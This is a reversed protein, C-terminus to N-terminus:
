FPSHTVTIPQLGCLLMFVSESRHMQHAAAASLNGEHFVIEDFRLGGAVRTHALCKSLSRSWDEANRVLTFVVNAVGTTPEIPAAAAAALPLFLLCLHYLSVAAVRRPRLSLTRRWVEGPIVQMAYRCSSLAHTCCLQLMRAHLVPTSQVPTSVCGTPWRLSCGSMSCQQSPWTAIRREGARAVLNEALSAQGHMRARRNSQWSPVLGSWAEGECARLPLGTSRGCM